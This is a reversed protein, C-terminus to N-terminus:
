SFRPSPDGYGADRDFAGLYQLVRKRTRRGGEVVLNGTRPDHYCSTFGHAHLDRTADEAQSPDVAQGISEWHKWLDGKPFRRGSFQAGIDQIAIRDAEGLDRVGIEALEEDTLRICTNGDEAKFAREDHQAVTMVIEIPEETACHEFCYVPM